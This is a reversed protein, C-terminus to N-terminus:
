MDLKGFKDNRETKTMGGWVGERSGVEEDVELGVALCQDTIPCKACIAKADASGRGEPFWPDPDERSTIKGACAAGILRPDPQFFM